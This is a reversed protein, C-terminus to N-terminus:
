CSSKKYCISLQISSPMKFGSSVLRAMGGSANSTSASSPNSRAERFFRPPKASAVTATSVSHSSLQWPVDTQSPRWANGCNAAVDAACSCDPLTCAM